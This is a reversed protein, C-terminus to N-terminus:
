SSSFPLWFLGSSFLMPAEKDYLLMRGVAELAQWINDVSTIM